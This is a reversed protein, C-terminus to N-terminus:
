CVVVRRVPIQFRGFTTPSDYDLRLGVWQEPITEWTCKSPSYYEDGDCLIEGHGVLVSHQKENM